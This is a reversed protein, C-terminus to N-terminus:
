TWNIRNCLRLLKTFVWTHHSTANQILKSKEKYPSNAFVPLDALCGTHSLSHTHIHIHIYALTDLSHIWKDLSDTWFDLSDTCMKSNNICSTVYVSAHFSIHSCCLFPSVTNLVVNTRQWTCCTECWFLRECLTTLLAHIYSYYHFNVMNCTSFLIQMM